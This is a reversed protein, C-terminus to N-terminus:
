SSLGKKMSLRLGSFFGFDLNGNYLLHSSFLENIFVHKARIFLFESTEAMSSSSFQAYDSDSPNKNSEFRENYFFM